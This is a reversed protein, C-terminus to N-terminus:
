LKMGSINNCTGCHEYSEWIQNQKIATKYFLIGDKPLKMVLIFFVFIQSCHSLNTCVEMLDQDYKRLVFRPFLM